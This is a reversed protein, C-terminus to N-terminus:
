KRATDALARYYDELLTRYEPSVTGKAGQLLQAVEDPSIPPTGEGVTPKVDLPSKGMEIVRQEPAPLGAAGEGLLVGADGKEWPLQDLKAKYVAVWSALDQLNWNLQELLKPNVDNRLLRDYLQNIVQGVVEL